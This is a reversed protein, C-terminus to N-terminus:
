ASKTKGRKKPKPKSTSRTARKTTKGVARKAREKPTHRPM